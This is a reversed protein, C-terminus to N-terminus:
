GLSQSPRPEKSPEPVRPLLGAGMVRTIMGLYFLYQYRNLDWDLVRMTQGRLMDFALGGLITSVGFFLGTAAFYAAVAAGSREPPALDLLLKPVGINIGAYAIWAAWALGIPWLRNEDAFLYGALGLGVIVQCVVM